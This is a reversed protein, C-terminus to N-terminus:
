TGHKKSRNSVKESRPRSGVDPVDSSGRVPLKLLGELDEEAASIHGLGDDPPAQETAAVKAANEAIDPRAKNVADIYVKVPTMCMEIISLFRDPDVAPVTFALADRLRGEAEFLEADERKEFFSGDGTIFGKAEKM